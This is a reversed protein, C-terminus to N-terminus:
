KPAAAGRGLSSPPRGLPPDSGSRRGTQSPRESCFRELYWGPLQRRRFISSILLGSASFSRSQHAGQQTARFGRRPAVWHRALVRFMTRKVCGNSALATCGTYHCSDGDFFPGLCGGVLQSRGVKTCCGRPWLHETPGVWHRTLVRCATRKACSNATFATCVTYHCSDGDFFPGM